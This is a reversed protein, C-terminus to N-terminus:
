GHPTTLIPREGTLLDFTFITRLVGLMIEPHRALASCPNRKYRKMRQTRLSPLASIKASVRCCSDVHWAFM